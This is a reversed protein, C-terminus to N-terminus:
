ISRGGNAAYNRMPKDFGYEYVDKDMTDSKLNMHRFDEGVSVKVLISWRGIEPVKVNDFYYNGNEVRPQTLTIDAAHVIPRVISLHLDANNVPQGNTDEIKYAITSGELSVSEGIYTLNYKKNFAIEALILENVNADLTHYDLMFDTDEHLPQLFSVYITMGCAIVILIIGTVIAIPWQKGDALNMRKEREKEIIM